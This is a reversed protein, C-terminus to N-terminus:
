AQRVNVIGGIFFYSGFFFNISIFLLDVLLGDNGM